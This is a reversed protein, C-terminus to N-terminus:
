KDSSEQEQAAAVAEDYDGSRVAAFPVFAGRDSVGIQVLSGDETRQVALTPGEDSKPPM